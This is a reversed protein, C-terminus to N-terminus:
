SETQQMYEKNPQLHESVSDQWLQNDSPMNTKQGSLWITTQIKLYNCSKVESVYIMHQVM